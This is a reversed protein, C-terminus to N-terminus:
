HHQLCECAAKQNLSRAYSAKELSKTNNRGFTNLQAASSSLPETRNTVRVAIEATSPRWGSTKEVSRDYVEHKTEV